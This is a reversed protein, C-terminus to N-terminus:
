EATYCSSCQIIFTGLNFRNFRLIYKWMKRESINTVGGPDSCVQLDWASFRNARTSIRASSLTCDPLKHAHDNYDLGSPKLVIQSKDQVSSLKLSKMVMKYVTQSQSDEFQWKQRGRERRKNTHAELRTSPIQQQTHTSHIHINM